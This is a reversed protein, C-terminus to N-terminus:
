CKVVIRSTGRKTFSLWSHRYSSTTSTTKCQHTMKACKAPRDCAKAVSGAHDFVTVWAFCQKRVRNSKDTLEVQKASFQSFEVSKPLLQKQFSTM